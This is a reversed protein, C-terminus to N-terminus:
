SKDGLGRKLVYRSAALVSIFNLMAYALAIDVFMDLRDFAVGMFLILATTKSGMANAGMLRDLTTPGAATRYLSVLMLLAIYVGSYLFIREM